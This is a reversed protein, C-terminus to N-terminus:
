SLSGSPQGAQKKGLRAIFLGDTHHCHPLLLWGDGAPWAGPPLAASLDEPRCGPREALLRSVVQENEEPELSCTSYVIAGGPKVLGEAALLLRFQLDSFAALQEPQKRWRSDPRRRLAGTGSCPADVLCLDLGGTAAMTTSDAAAAKVIGIGLRSCNGLLLEVRSPRRDFAFIEGLNDMMEALHTTKGGAGAALDAVRWGPRPQAAGVVLASGEGQVTFLGERYSATRQVPIEAKLVELSEPWWRGPRCRVGEGLLRETLMEPSVRLRNARLTLPAPQNDAELLKATESQGFRDLWREVLWRPHSYAVALHAVPDLRPDPMVVRRGAAAVRRLVANVLGATGPHGYRRALKVSEDVVAPAPIRNLFLLQYAGLRLVNRIWPTLEQLPSRCYHSLVYDIRGRWRLTGGTLETVLARDRTALGTTSLARDLLPNLYAGRM